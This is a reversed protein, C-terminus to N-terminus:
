GEFTAPQRATQADECRRFPMRQGHLHQDGNAVRGQELAQGAAGHTM